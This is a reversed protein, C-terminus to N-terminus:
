CLNRSSIINMEYLLPNPCAEIVCCQNYIHTNNTSPCDFMFHEITDIAALDCKNCVRFGFRDVNLVLRVLSGIIRAYTPNKIAHQWWPLVSFSYTTFKLYNLVKCAKDLSCELIIRKKDSEIVSQKVSRKWERMTM